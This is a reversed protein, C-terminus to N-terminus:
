ERRLQPADPLEDIDPLTSSVGRAELLGGVEGIAAVVSQGARGQRLGATLREVIPEWQASPVRAEVGSDCVIEVRHEFVAVLLLLGTHARTAFVDHEAFAAMARRKVRVDIIEAGILGRHLAPLLLPLLYGLGAGIWAPLALWLWISGGWVGLGGHLISAVLAVAMAGLAAGKWLAGQYAECREVIVTVIEGASRREAVAVAERIAQLDGDTFPPIHSV